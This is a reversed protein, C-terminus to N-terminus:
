GSPTGQTVLGPAARKLPTKKRTIPSQTKLLGGPPCLAVSPFGRISARKTGTAFIM